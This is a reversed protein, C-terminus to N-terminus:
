LTLTRVLSFYQGSSYSFAAGDLVLHGPRLGRLRREFERLLSLNVSGPRVWSRFSRVTARCSMKCGNGSSM